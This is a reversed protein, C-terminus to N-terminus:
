IVLSMNQTSLLVYLVFGAKLVFLVLITAFLWFIFNKIKIINCAFIISIFAGFFELLILSILLGRNSLDFINKNITWLGLVPGFLVEPIAFMSLFVAFWIKQKKTM